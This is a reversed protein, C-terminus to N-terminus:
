HALKDEANKASKKKDRLTGFIEWAVTLAILIGIIIIVTTRNEEATVERFVYGVKPIGFVTKGVVNDWLVPSADNQSNADGKTIFTQEVNNIEVVRHTVLAGDENFVYTIVDNIQITEPKVNKVFILSNVGYMPEMSGSDVTLIYFGMLKLAILAVAIISFFTLVFTFFFDGILEVGTIDDDDSEKVKEPKTYNKSKM